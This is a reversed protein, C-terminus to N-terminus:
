ESDGTPEEGRWMSAAVDEDTDTNDHEDTPLGYAECIDTSAVVPVGSMLARGFDEATDVELAPADEVMTERIMSVVKRKPVRHADGRATGTMRM